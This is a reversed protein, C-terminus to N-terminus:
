LRLVYSTQHNFAEDDIDDVPRQIDLKLFGTEFDLRVPTAEDDSARKLDDMAGNNRMTSLADQWKNQRRPLISMDLKHLSTRSRFASGLKSPKAEEELDTSKYGDSHYKTRAGNIQKGHAPRQRMGKRLVSIRRSPASDSADEDLDAQKPKSNWDNDSMYPSAVDMNTSDSGRRSNLGSMELPDPHKEGFLRQAVSLSRRIGSLSSQGHRHGKPSQSAPAEPSGSIPTRTYKAEDSHQKAHATDAEDPLPPPANTGGSGSRRSGKTSTSFQSVSDDVPETVEPVPLPPLPQVKGGCAIYAELDEPFM